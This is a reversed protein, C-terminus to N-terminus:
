QYEKFFDAFFAENFPSLDFRFIQRAKATNLGTPRLNARNAGVDARIFSCKTSVPCASSLIAFLAKLPAHPLTFFSFVVNNPPREQLEVDPSKDYLISLIALLDAITGSGINLRIAVKIWARYDDDDMGNRPQGVIRGLIDLRGDTAEDIYRGHHMRQLLQDIEELPAVLSRILGILKTSKKFQHLMMIEAEDILNM